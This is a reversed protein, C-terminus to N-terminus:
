CFVGLFWLRAEMIGNRREFNGVNFRLENFM